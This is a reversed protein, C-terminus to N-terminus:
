VSDCLVADFLHFAENVARVVALEFCDVRVFPSLCRQEVVVRRALGRTVRRGLEEKATFDSITQWRRDIVVFRSKAGLNFTSKALDTLVLIGVRVASLKRDKVRTLGNDDLVRLGLAPGIVAGDDAKTLVAALVNDLKLAVAFAIDAIPAEHLGVEGSAEM